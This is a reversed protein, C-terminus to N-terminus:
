KIYLTHIKLSYAAHNAIWVNAQHQDYVDCAFVMIGIPRTGRTPPNTLAAVSRSTHLRGKFHGSFNGLHGESSIPVLQDQGAQVGLFVIDGAGDATYNLDFAVDVVGSMPDGQVKVNSVKIDGANSSANALLLVGMAMVITCFKKM